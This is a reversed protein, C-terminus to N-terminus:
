GRGGLFFCPLLHLGNKFSSAFKTIGFRQACLAILHKPSLYNAILQVFAIDSNMMGVKGNPGLYVQRMSEM